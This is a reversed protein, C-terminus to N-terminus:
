FAWGVGITMRPAVSWHRSNSLGGLGGLLQQSEVEAAAVGGVPTPKGFTTNRSSLATLGAGVQLTLGPALIATYGLRLSGGYRVTRARSEVTVLQVEEPSSIPGLPYESRYSWHYTSLELHPGV